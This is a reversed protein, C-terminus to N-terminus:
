EPSPDPPHIDTGDIGKTEILRQVWAYNQGTKILQEHWRAKTERVGPTNTEGYSLQDLFLVVEELSGAILSTGAPRLPGQKTEWHFAHILRDILLLKDGPTHAHQYATLFTRYAPM